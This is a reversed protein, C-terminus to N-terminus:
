SHCCLCREPPVHLLHRARRRHRHVHNSGVRVQLTTLRSRLFSVDQVLSIDRVFASLQMRAARELDRQRGMDEDGEGDEAPEQGARACRMETLSGGGPARMLMTAKGDILQAAARLSEVALARGRRQGREGAGTTVEEARARLDRSVRELQAPAAATVAESVCKHLTDWTDADTGERGDQASGETDGVLSRLVGSMDRMLGGYERMMRPDGGDGGGRGGGGGQEESGGASAAAHLAAATDLQTLEALLSGNGSAAARLMQELKLCCTRAASGHDALARVLAATGGDELPPCQENARANADATDGVAQAPGTASAEPALAARCPSSSPPPPLPKLDIAKRLLLQVHAERARAAALEREVVGLRGQLKVLEASAPKVSADALAQARAGSVLDLKTQIAAACAGLQEAESATGREQGEGEGERAGPTGGAYSLEADRGNQVKDCNQRELRVMRAGVADLLRQLVLVDNEEAVDHVLACLELRLRREEQTTREAGRLAAKLLGKEKDAAYRKCREEELRKTM